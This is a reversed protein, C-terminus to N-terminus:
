KTTRSFLRELILNKSLSAFSKNNSKIEILYGAEKLKVENPQSQKVLLNFRKKIAEVKDINRRFLRVNDLHEKEL